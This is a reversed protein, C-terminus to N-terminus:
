PARRDPEAVGMELQLRRALFLVREATTWLDHADTRLRLEPRLSEEYGLVLDPGRLEDPRAPELARDPGLRWRTAREREFCTEEPCVLQVEAFRPILERAAERWARRPATADVIVCAGADALLRASGALARHLLEQEAESRAPARLLARGVSHVDLTRVPAGRARLARAVREALSTKGSGPRGTIWIAFGATARPARGPAAGLRRALEAVLAVAEEAPTTAPDIALDPAPREGGAAAGPPAVEVAAFRPIAARAEERGKGDGAPADVIVPVGVEVLATALFALLRSAADLPGGAAAGRRLLAAIEGPALLRVAAGAGGLAEAAGLALGPAATIWIAWSM